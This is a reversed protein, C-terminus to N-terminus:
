FWHWVKSKIKSKGVLLNAQTNKTSAPLLCSNESDSLFAKIVWPGPPLMFLLMMVHIGKAGLNGLCSVTHAPHIGHEQPNVSPKWLLGCALRSKTRFSSKGWRELNGAAYTISLFPRPLLTWTRSSMASGALCPTYSAWPSSVDWCTSATCQLPFRLTRARERM